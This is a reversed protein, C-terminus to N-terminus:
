ASPDRQAARCRKRPLLWMIDGWFQPTVGQAVLYECLAKVHSLYLEREGKEDALAKSRGKGLDFTEDNCINFKNSRFLPPVRRM